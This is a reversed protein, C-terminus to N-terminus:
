SRGPTCTGDRYYVGDYSSTSSAEAQYDETFADGPGTPDQGKSSSYANAITERDWQKNWKEGVDEVGRM